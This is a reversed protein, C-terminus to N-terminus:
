RTCGSSDLDMPTYYNHTFVTWGWSTDSGEDLRNRACYSPYSTYAGLTTVDKRETTYTTKTSYAAEHTTKTTRTTNTKRTDTRCGNTRTSANYKRRARM